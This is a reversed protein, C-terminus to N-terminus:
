DRKSGSLQVLLLKTYAHAEQLAKHSPLGSEAEDVLIDCRNMADQAASYVSDRHLLADALASMRDRKQTYDSHLDERQQKNSVSWHHHIKKASTLLNSSADCLRKQSAKLPDDDSAEFAALRGQDEAWLTYPALFILRFLLIIAVIIITAWAVYIVPASDGWIATSFLAMLSTIIGFITWSPGFAKKFIRKLYEM